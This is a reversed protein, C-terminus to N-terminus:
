PNIKWDRHIRGKQDILALETQTYWSVRYSFVQNRIHDDTSTTIYSIIVGDQLKWTGSCREEGKFVKPFFKKYTWTSSFSGDANMTFTEIREDDQHGWTGVLAKKLQEDSTPKTIPNIQQVPPPNTAPGTAPPAPTTTPKAVTNTEQTTGPLIRRLSFLCSKNIPTSAFYTPRESADHHCLCLLLSNGDLLYIGKSGVKDSSTLDVSKPSQDPNLVFAIERKKNTGPNFFKMMNGEITIIGDRILTERVAKATIVEGSDILSAVEWVGQLRRTEDESSGALLFTFISFVTGVALLCKNM